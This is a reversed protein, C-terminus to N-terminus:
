KMENIARLLNKALNSNKRKLEEYQVLAGDKNKSAVHTLGIEYPIQNPDASSPLKIKEICTLSAVYQGRLRVVRCQLVDRFWSDDDKILSIAKEYSDIAEGNKGKHEYVRALEKYPVYELPSRKIAELLLRIAEEYNNQQDYIDALDLYANLYKDDLELVTRLQQIAKDDDKMDRHVLALEWRASVYNPRLKIAEEFYNIAAPNNKKVAYFLDGILCKISADNPAYREAQQYNALAQDAYAGNKYFKYVNGLALYAQEFSENVVLARRLLRIAEEYDVDSNQQRARSIHTLALYWFLFATPNQTKELAEKRLRIAEDINGQRVRISSLGLRASISDKKLALAQTYVRVAENYNQLEEYCYGILDLTSGKTDDNTEYILGTELQRLAERYNGLHFYAQGLLAYGEPGEPKLEVLRKAHEIVQASYENRKQGDKEMTAQQNRILAFYLHSFAHLQKFGLNCDAALFSSHAELKEVKRRFEEVNAIAEPYNFQSLLANALLLNGYPHDYNHENIATRIHEAATKAVRVLREFDQARREQLALSSFRSREPILETQALRLYAGSFSRDYEISKRFNRSAEEWKQQGFYIDGLYLYALARDREKISRDDILRQFQRVSEDYQKKKGVLYALGIKASTDNPSKKFVTRFYKEADNYREKGIYIYGLAILANHFDQDLRLVETYAKIAQDQCALDFYVNGLGYVARPDKPNLEAVRRYSDYAKEYNSEERAMNGDRLAQEIAVLKQSSVLRKNNVSPNPPKNPVAVPVDHQGMALRFTGALLLLLISCTLRQFKLNYRGPM